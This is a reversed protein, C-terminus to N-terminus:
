PGAVWTNANCTDSSLKGMVGVGSDLPRDDDAREFSLQSCRILKRVGLWAIERARFRVRPTGLERLENEFGGWVLNIPHPQM